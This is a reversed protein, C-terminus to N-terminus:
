ESNTKMLSLHSTLHKKHFTKKTRKKLIPTETEVQIPIDKEIFKENIQSAFNNTKEVIMDFSSSIEKLSSITDEVMLYAQVFNLGTTQLHKSLPSTLRFIEQFIKTTLITEYKLFGNLYMHAKYRVDANFDNSNAIEHLAQCLEL